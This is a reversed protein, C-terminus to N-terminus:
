QYVIRRHFENRFFLNLMKSLEIPFWLGIVSHNKLSYTFNKWAKYFAFLRFTLKLKEQPSDPVATSCKIGM